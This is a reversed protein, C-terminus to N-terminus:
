LALPRILLALLFQKLIEPLWLFSQALKSPAHPFRCQNLLLTPLHREFAQILPFTQHADFCRLASLQRRKLSLTPTPQSPILVRCSMLFRKLQLQPMQPPRSSQRHLRQRHHPHSQARM